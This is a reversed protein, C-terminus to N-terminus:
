LMITFEQEGITVVASNDCTGEGYDLIGSVGNQNTIAIAGTVFFPCTAEKRLATIVEGSRSTGNTFTTNWNGTILFVNDTWTGSVVGEIWERTRNLNRTASVDSGVFNITIESNLVAEPNGNANELTRIVTGSGLVENQNYTFDQYQYMVERSQNQIPGYSLNIQGSVQAGNNLTCQEGFNVVMSGSGDGNPSVTILACEPFFSNATAARTNIVNEIFANDIISYSADDIQDTQAALVLAETNITEQDPAADEDDNCSVIFVCLSLAFTSLYKFSNKM